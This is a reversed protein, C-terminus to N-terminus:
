KDLGGIDTYDETPREDVEMAMVRSDYEAPLKEYVIFSEKNVAVLEGPKLEEAEVLGPVPLYVTHRGTTKVILAKQKKEDKKDVGPLKKVNFGSGDKDGDEEEEPELIEGVNAVMHPLQTNLKLKERNEKLRRDLDDTQKKVNTFENKERRIQSEMEKIAATVQDDTMGDLEAMPDEVDGWADDDDLGGELNDKDKDAVKLDKKDAM